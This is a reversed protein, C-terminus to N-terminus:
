RNCSIKSREMCPFLQLPRWLKSSFEFNESKNLSIFLYNQNAVWPFGYFSYYSPLWYYLQNTPPPPSKCKGKRTHYLSYSSSLKYMIIYLLLYIYLPLLIWPYYILLHHLYRLLQAAHSSQIIYRIHTAQPVCYFATLLIIFM